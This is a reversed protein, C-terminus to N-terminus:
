TSTIAPFKTPSDPTQKEKSDPLKRFRLNSEFDGNKKENSNELGDTSGPAETPTDDKKLTSKLKVNKLEDFNLGGGTEKAPLPKSNKKEANNVQYLKAVEREPEKLKGELRGKIVKDICSKYGPRQKFLEIWDKTYKEFVLLKEPYVKLMAEYSKVKAEFDKEQEENRKDLDKSLVRPYDQKTKKILIPEYKKLDVVHKQDVMGRIIELEELNFTQFLEQAADFPILAFAGEEMNKLSTQANKLDHTFKDKEQAAIKFEDSNENLTEMKLLAYQLAVETLKVIEQLQKISAEDSSSVSTFKKFLEARETWKKLIREREKKNYAEESSLKSKGIPAGPARPPPPPVGKTAFPQCLPSSTSSVIAKKPVPSFRQLLPSLHQFMPSFRQIVNDIVKGANTAIVQQNKNLKVPTRSPSDPKTINEIDLIKRTKKKLGRNLGRAQDFAWM